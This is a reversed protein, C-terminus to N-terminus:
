LRVRYVTGGLGVSIPEFYRPDVRHYFALEMMVSECISRHMYFRNRRKQQVNVVCAQGDEDLVEERTISGIRQLDIVKYVSVTDRRGGERVIHITKAARDFSWATRELPRGQDDIEVIKMFLDRGTGKPVLGRAGRFRGVTGALETFTWPIYLFVKRTAPPLSYSGDRLATVLESPPRGTESEFREVLRYIVSRYSPNTGAEEAALRLLAASERQSDTLLAEAVIWIDPGQRSGDIISDGGSFYWSGYAYDWWSIVFDGPEVHESLRTLQEAEGRYVATHPRYAMAHELALALVPVTLGVAVVGQILRPYRKVLRVVLSGVILFFWANGLAVLPVGFITFRQGFLIALLLLPLMLLMPRYRWWVACIGALGTVMLTVSGAIREALVALSTPKLEAVSSGIDVFSVRGGGSSGSTSIGLAAVARSLLVEMAHSTMGLLVVLGAIAALYSWLPLTKVRELVLHAGILLLVRLWPSIPVFALLVLAAIRYGLEEKRLFVISYAVLGLSVALLVRESGPHVYEAAVIAVAAVLGFSYRRRWLSAVLLATVAYTYWVTLMDTDFYHPTTRNWYSFGIVAILGALFGWLRRRFMAGLLILPLAILPALLMPLWTGVALVSAGSLEVSLAGLAVLLSDGSSPLNTLEPPFGETEHRVGSAYYYGDETTLVRDGQFWLEPHEPQEAYWM